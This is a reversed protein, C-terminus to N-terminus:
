QENPNFRNVANCKPCYSMYVTEKWLNEQQNTEDTVYKCLCEQCKFIYTGEKYKLLEKM